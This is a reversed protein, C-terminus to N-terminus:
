DSEDDSDSHDDQIHINLQDKNKFGDECHNCKFAHMKENHNTLVQAESPNYKSGKTTFNCDWQGCQIGHESGDHKLLKEIDNCHFDCHQCNLDFSHEFEKHTMLELENQFKAECETCKFMDNGLKHKNTKHRTLGSKSTSKFACMTCSNDDPTEETRAKLKSLRLASIEKNLIDTTENLEQKAKVYLFKIRNFDNQSRPVEKVAEKLLKITEEKNSIEEIKTNLEVKIKDLEKKFREESLQCENLLVDKIKLENKVDLIQRELDEEHSDNKGNLDDLM